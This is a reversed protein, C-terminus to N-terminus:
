ITGPCGVVTCNNTKGRVQPPYPHRAPGSCVYGPSSATYVFSLREFRSTISATVGSSQSIEYDASPDKGFADLELPIGGPIDRLLEVGSRAADQVATFHLLRYQENGLDVVLGSVDRNIMPGFTDKLSSDASFLPLDFAIMVAMNAWKKSEGALLQPCHRDQQTSRNLGLPFPLLEKRIAHEQSWGVLSPRLKEEISRINANGCQRAITPAM